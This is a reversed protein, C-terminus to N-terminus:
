GFISSLVKQADEIRLRYGHFTFQHTGVSGPDSAQSVGPTLFTTMIVDMFANPMILFPTPMATVYGELSIMQIPIPANNFFRSSQRDRLEIQLPGLDGADSYDDAHRSLGTVLFGAEQSVQFSSVLRTASTLNPWDSTTTLDFDVSYWFPWAVHNLHGVNKPMAHPPLFQKLHQALAGGNNAVPQSSLAQKRAALNKTANKIQKIQNLTTQIEQALLDENAM